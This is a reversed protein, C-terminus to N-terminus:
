DNSSKLRRLEKDLADAEKESVKWRPFEELERIRALRKLRKEAIKADARDRELRAAKEELRVSNRLRM